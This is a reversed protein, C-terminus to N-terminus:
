QKYYSVEQKLKANEEILEAVRRNLQENEAMLLPMDTKTDM